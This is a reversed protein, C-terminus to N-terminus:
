KEGQRKHRLAFFGIGFAGILVPVSLINILALAIDLAEIDERLRKRIERLAGRKDAEEKRYNAILKRVELSAVLQGRDRQKNQLERLKTQVDTLEEQLDNYQAQYNAQAEAELKRVVTFPRQATGKGRLSILDESGALFEFINNIFNLNDNLPQLATFGLLNIKQVSFSDAMFDTDGMLVLATSDESKTLGPEEEGDGEIGDSKGTESAADPDTSDAAPRGEPFATDFKGTVLAGLTYRRGSRSMQRAIADPASFNLMSAGISDSNKSSQILATFTKDDTNLLEFSGSEALLMSNLQATAPSETDLEEVRLWQPFRTRGARTSVPAALDLDAVFNLSNFAIGWKEFLRPLDSSVNPMSGMMMAQQGVQSRQTYSSPDVAIFLPGGNLFYQDIAYLLRDNVNQPHILALVDLNQPLSDEEAKIEVVEFGKELETVFAWDTPSQQNPMFQQQPPMTAIVPLSSLIGLRPLDYQQVRHLARSIDYEIFSERRIDFFPIIEEQDAQIVVLGFFLSDGNQLTQGSIGARIAAEEEETDPKPDIVTLRIMGDAAHKYQRLLSEVRAAYNKFSIPVIKNSRVFYYDLVIPEEVKALLNRSGESLTFQKEATLDIQGPILSSTVTVLVLGVVLLLLAVAKSALKM